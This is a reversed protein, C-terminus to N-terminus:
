SRGSSRLTLSSWETIVFIRDAIAQGRPPDVVLAGALERFPVPAGMTTAWYHYTGAQGSAFRIDRAGGPAM